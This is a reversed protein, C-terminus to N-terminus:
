PLISFSPTVPSVIGAGIGLGYASCFLLMALWCITAQFNADGKDFLIISMAMM